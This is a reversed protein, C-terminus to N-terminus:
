KMTFKLTLGSLQIKEISPLKLMNKAVDRLVYRQQMAGSTSGTSKNGIRKLYDAKAQQQLSLREQAQSNPNSFGSSLSFSWICGM